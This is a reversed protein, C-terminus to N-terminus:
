GSLASAMLALESPALSHLTYLQAQGAVCQFRQATAMITDQGYSSLTKADFLDCHPERSLERLQPADAQALAPTLGGETGAEAAAM